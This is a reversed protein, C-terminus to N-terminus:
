SSKKTASIIWTSSPLWVAGGQEALGEYEQTLEAAIQAKKEAAKAEGGEAAAKAGALRIAEGAPGMNTMFDVAEDVTRGLQMPADFRCFSVDVFGAAQLIDSMMDAGANAFPGPGCTVEDKSKDEEAIHREAVQQARYLFPNDSRKRWVALHMKGGPKLAAAMNKFGRVPSVFFM